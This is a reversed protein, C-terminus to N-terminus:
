PTTGAEAFAGARCAPSPGFAVHGAVGYVEQLDASAERRLRIHSLARRAQGGYRGARLGPREIVGHFLQYLPSFSSVVM